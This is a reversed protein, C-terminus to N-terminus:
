RPGPLPYSYFDLWNARASLPAFSRAARNLNTSSYVAHFEDADPRRDEILRREIPGAVCRRIAAAIAAAACGTDADETQRFQADGAVAAFVGKVSGADCCVASSTSCSSAARFRPCSRKTRGAAARDAAPQEVRGAQRGIAFQEAEDALLIQGAVANM